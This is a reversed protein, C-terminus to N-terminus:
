TREAASLVHEADFLSVLGCAPCSVPVYSASREARKVRVRITALPGLLHGDEINLPHESKTQCQPCILQKDAM